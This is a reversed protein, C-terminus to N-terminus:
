HTDKVAFKMPSIFVNFVLKFYFKDILSTKKRNLLYIKRAVLISNIRGNDSSFVPEIM